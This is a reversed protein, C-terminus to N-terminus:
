RTATDSWCSGSPRTGYRSRTWCCATWTSSPPGSAAPSCSAQPPRLFPPPLSSRRLPEVAARNYRLHVRGDRAPRRGAIEPRHRRGGLIRVASAGGIQSRGRRMRTIASRIRWGLRRGAMSSTMRTTAMASTPAPIRTRSGNITSLAEHVVVVAVATAIAAASRDESRPLGPVLSPGRREPPSPGEIEALVMGNIRGVLRRGGEARPDSRAAATARPAPSRRRCRRRASVRPGPCPVPGLGPSVPSRWGTARGRRLMRARPSWTLRACGTGRDGRLRCGARRRRRDGAPARDEVGHRGSEGDVRACRRGLRARPGCAAHPLCLRRHVLHRRPVAVASSPVPNM